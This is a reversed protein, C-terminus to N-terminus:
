LSFRVGLVLFFIGEVPPLIVSINPSNGATEHVARSHTQFFNVPDHGLNVVAGIVGPELNKVVHVLALKGTEEGLARIGGAGASM